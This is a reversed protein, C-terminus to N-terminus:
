RRPLEKILEKIEQMDEKLDAKVEIIKAELKSEINSATRDLEPREIKKEVLVAVERKLDHNSENLNDVKDVLSDFQVFVRKFFFGGALTVITWVAGFIKILLPIESM